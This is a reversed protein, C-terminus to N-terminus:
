YDDMHVSVFFQQFIIDQFCVSVDHDMPKKKRRPYRICPTPICWLIIAIEGLDFIGYRFVLNCCGLNKTGFGSVRECTAISQVAAIKSPLYLLGISAYMFRIIWFQIKFIIRLDSDYGSQHIIGSILFHVPAVFKMNIPDVQQLSRFLDIYVPEHFRGHSM